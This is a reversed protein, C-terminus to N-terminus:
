ITDVASMSVGQWQVGQESVEWARGLGCFQCELLITQFKVLYFLMVKDTKRTSKGLKKVRKKTYITQFVCLFVM